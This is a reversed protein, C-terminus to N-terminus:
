HPLSACCSEIAFPNRKQNHLVLDFQNPDYTININLAEIPVVFLLETRPPFEALIKLSFQALIEFFIKFSYKALIEM